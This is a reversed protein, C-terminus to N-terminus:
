EDLCKGIYRAFVKLILNLSKNYEGKQLAVIKGLVQQNLIIDEVTCSDCSMEKQEVFVKNNVIHIQKNLFGDAIGCCCIVKEDCIFCSCGVLEYVSECVKQGITKLEKIQDFKTICIKNDDILLNLKDGNKICLSKRVDKPLVIRGMSDIEKVINCAM